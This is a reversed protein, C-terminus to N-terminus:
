FVCKLFVMSSLIVNLEQYLERIKSTEAALSLQTVNSKATSLALAARLQDETLGHLTSPVSPQPPAGSAGSTDEM